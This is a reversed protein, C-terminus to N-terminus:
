YRGTAVGVARLMGDGQDAYEAAATRAQAKTIKFFRLLASVLVARTADIDAGETRAAVAHRLGETRTMSRYGIAWGRGRDTLEIAAHHPRTAMGLNVLAQAARGEGKGIEARDPGDAHFARLLLVAGLHTVRFLGADLVLASPAAPRIRSAAQYEEPRNPQGTGAMSALAHGKWTDTVIAQSADGAAIQAERDADRHPELPMPEATTDTAVKAPTVHKAKMDRIIATVLQHHTAAKRVKLGRGAVEARLEDMTKLVLHSGYAPCSPECDGPANIPKAKGCYDCGTVRVLSGNAVRAFFDGEQGVYGDTENRMIVRVVTGDAKRDVRTVTLIHSNAGRYHQGVAPATTDFM